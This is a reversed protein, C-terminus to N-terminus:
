PQQVDFGGLTAPPIATRTFGGRRVGTEQRIGFAGPLEDRRLWFLPVGEELVGPERVLVDETISGSLDVAKGTLTAPSDQRCPERQTAAPSAAMM